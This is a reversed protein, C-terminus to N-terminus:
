FAQADNRAVCLLALGVEVPCAFTIGAVRRGAIEGFDPAFIRRFLKLCSKEPRLAAAESRRTPCSPRCDCQRRSFLDATRYLSDVIKMNREVVRISIEM